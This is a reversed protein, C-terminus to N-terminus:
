GPWSYHPQLASAKYPQHLRVLPSKPNVNKAKQTVPRSLGPQHDHYLAAVHLTGHRLTPM